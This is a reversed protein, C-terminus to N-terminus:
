YVCYTYSYLIYMGAVPSPLTHPSEGEEVVDVAGEIHLTNSGNGSNKNNNNNNVDGKMSGISYDSTITSSTPLPDSNHGGTSQLPPQLPSDVIPIDQSINMSVSNNNSSSSYNNSSYTPVIPTSIPTSNFLPPNSQRIMNSTSSPPAATPQTMYSLDFSDARSTMHNHINGGGGVGGIGGASPHLRDYKQEILSDLTGLACLETQIYLQGEDIWSNYYQVIYSCGQLAAHACVEKTIVRNEGETSIISKIRKVAYVIGIIHTYM